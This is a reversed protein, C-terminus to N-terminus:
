AGGATTWWRKIQVLREFAKPGLARALVAHSPRYAHSWGGGPHLKRAEQFYRSADDLLGARLFIRADRALLGALAALRVETCQGREDLLAKARRVIHLHQRFVRNSDSSVSGARRRVRVLVEPVHVFRMGHCALRLHLDREQACPLSEDLGGVAKLQERWHLPTMTTLQQRLIWVVDDLQDSGDHRLSRREVQNGDEDIQEWDCYVLHARGHALAVPLMRTVKEPALLDDADLFQVFEGRALEIGRNRAASGGRNPGSEWRIRAGFSKIRDLSSDTSGDDVVIVEVNPYTQGLASEIAEGVFAEANYCPIVISVTANRCVDCGKRCRHFAGSVIELRKRESGSSGLVGNLPFM